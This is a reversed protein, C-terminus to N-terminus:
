DCGAYGRPIWSATWQAQKVAPQELMHTEVDAGLESGADPEM